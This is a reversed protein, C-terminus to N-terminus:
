QSKNSLFNRQKIPTYYFSFDWFQFLKTNAAEGHVCKKYRGVRGILLTVSTPNYFFKTYCGKVIVKTRENSLNVCQTGRQTFLIEGAFCYLLNCITGGLNQNDLYENSYFLNECKKLTYKGVTIKLQNGGKLNVFPLIM